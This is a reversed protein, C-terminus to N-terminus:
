VRTTEKYSNKVIIEYINGVIQMIELTSIAQKFIFDEFYFGQVYAQRSWGNSMRHLIYIYLEM